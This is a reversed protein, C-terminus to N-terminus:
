RWSGRGSSGTTSERVVLDYDAAVEAPASEDGDLRGLLLQVAHETRQVPCRAGRGDIDFGKTTVSGISTTAVGPRSRNHTVSESPATTALLKTSM